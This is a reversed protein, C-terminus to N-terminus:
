ESIIEFEQVGYAGPAIEYRAFVIVPNGEQNVYFRTSDDISQFGDEGVFYKIEDEGQEREKMQKVISENAITIYNEGLFDKLTYQNGTVLNINYFYQEKYANSWSEASTIVISVMTDTQSKIEYTVDAKLNKKAFEEVTGGTELYAEKYELINEEALKIHKEVLEDIEANIDSIALKVEDQESDVVIEPIQATITMDDNSKEYDRVTLVKAIAGVVPLDGLKMAFVESTNLGVVLIAFAAAAAVASITSYSVRHSKKRKDNHNKSNGAEFNAITQNVREELEEPVKMKQYNQKSLKFHNM